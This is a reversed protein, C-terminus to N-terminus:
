KPGAQANAGNLINKKVFKSHLMLTNKLSYSNDGYNTENEEFANL